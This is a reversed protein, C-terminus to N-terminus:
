PNEWDGEFRLDYVVAGVTATDGDGSTESIAKVREFQSVHCLYDVAVCSIVAWDSDAVFLDANPTDYLRAVDDEGGDPDSDAEVEIEEFFNGKLLYDSGAFHGWFKAVEASGIFTDAWPSGRYVVRDHGGHIADVHVEEFRAARRYNSGSTVRGQTPTGVFVDDRDSDEFLARDFGGASGFALVTDFWACSNKYGPGQLYSEDATSVFTEDGDSDFLYATDDGDGAYAEASNFWWAGLYFGSGIMKMVGPRGVCREDGDSGFLSATDVGGPGAV